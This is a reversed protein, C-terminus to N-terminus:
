VTVSQKPVKELEQLLSQILSEYEVMDRHHSIILQTYEESYQKILKMLDSCSSETLQLDMEEVQRELTDARLQELFTAHRAGDLEQRVQLHQQKLQTYLQQFENIKTDANHLELLRQLKGMESQTAEFARKSEELQRQKEYLLATLHKENESLGEEPKSEPLVCDKVESISHVSLTMFSFLAVPFSFLLSCFLIDNSVFYLGTGLTMGFLICAVENKKGSFFLVQSLSFFFLFLSTQFPPEWYSLALSIFGVSLYLFKNTYRLNKKLIM